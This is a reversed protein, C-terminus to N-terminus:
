LPTVDVVKGAITKAVQVIPTGKMLELTSLKVKFVKHITAQLEMAILSDLGIQTLSRGPDIREPPVKLVKGIESLFMDKITIERSDNDLLSLSVQSSPSKTSPDKLLSHFRPSSKWAPNFEGWEQWDVSAVAVAPIKHELVEELAQLAEKPLLTHIGVREFYEAVEQHKFVMGVEGLAGWNISTVNLGNANRHHALADLFCNAAVYAGQGPAGILSTLSSFLVFYDLSLEKTSSHLNWAGRAKANMVKNLQAETMFAIPADELVAAAHFIGSLPPADKSLELILQSVAGEEGVDLLKEHVCCGKKRLEEIADKAASSTAGSRGVLILTRAGHYVLWEAILLGFGGFGGTILYSKHKSISLPAKSTHQLELPPADLSVMDHPSAYEPMGEAELEELPHLTSPVSAGSEEIVELMRDLFTASSALEVPDLISVLRNPLTVKAAPDLLVCRGGTRLMRSIDEGHLERNSTIIVDSVDSDYRSSLGDGSAVIVAGTDKLETNLILRLLPDQCLVVAREGARVRAMDRVTFRAIGTVLLVALSREDNSPPLPLLLEPSLTYCYTLDGSVVALVEQGVRYGYVRSGVEEIQAIVLRLGRPLYHISQALENQMLSSIRTTCRVLNPAMPPADVGAISVRGGKEFAVRYSHSRRSFGEIGVKHLRRVFRTTGLYAVEEDPSPHMLEHLLLKPSVLPDSDVVRFSLEPYENMAVRMLGLLPAHTLNLSNEEGVVATCRTTVLTFRTGIKDQRVFTQLVPLFEHMLEEGTPDSDRARSPSSPALFIYEDAEHEGMASPHSALHCTTTPLEQEMLKKLDSLRAKESGLLLLSSRPELPATNAHIEWGDRYYYNTTELRQNEQRSLRQARVGQISCFVEGGEDMLIIDGEILDISESVKTALCLFAQPPQRLLVMQRISIPVYLSRPQTTVGELLVQFAGDLQTPPLIFTDEHKYPEQKEIWGLLTERGSSFLIKSVRQFHKGYQLGRGGMSKYHAEREIVSPHAKILATIDIHSRPIYSAEVVVGNAHPTALGSGTDSSVSFSGTKRDYSTHVSRSEDKTIVLAQSFTLDRIILPHNDEAVQQALQLAIEVYAAGPLVTAGDVSHDEILTRCDHEFECRYDGLQESVGLFPHINSLLRLARSADSEQFYRERQWPYYPLKVRSGSGTYLPRLTTLEGDLHLSILLERLQAIDSEGRKLTTYITPERERGELTEKISRTLVPHPGVEIFTSYGDDSLNELAQQLYVPNRINRYWYEGDGIAEVVRSGTVTSYLPLAPPRSVLSDLCNILEERLPSMSPSHYPVEVDLMKAFIGQAELERAIAFLGTSDGSLTIAAPANIAAISLSSNRSVYEEARERSIGVALMSGLGAAKKQLRSRHYSVLLAEELTHVGAAYLSAVEGVSHGVVASPTVGFELLVELLAAQLLFNAPQAILTDAISSTSENRSLETLISWGSIRRFIEDCELAKRRACPILLLERIMGWWQPGMGSFVLVIGDGKERKSSLRYGLHEQGHCLAGLAGLTGDISETSVVARESFQERFSAASYAIDRLSFDGKEILRLYGGAMARLADHSKATLVLPLTGPFSTEEREKTTRPPSQLLAHGNTGGYGFSNVGAFTDQPLSISERPLAINLAEFDIGPNPVELNALPPLLQKELSLAAKIIGAVGAAAELHGISSKISTVYCPTDRKILATGLAKAEIPDGVQTGTGHAEIFSLESPSVEGRHLVGRLLVHQSAESPVTIGPTRGDQNVGTARILAHIPDGDELAQHYPKLILIGAGEGRGYGDARADFSKSRGDPSLFRGKCMAIMLEPRLIVNVGGAIALSSEGMWLSTCAHHIAVLSSSCATDISMSPGRADLFYSIRNSLITMTSGVATHPGIQHRNDPTIQTLENDLTFGGIYVGTSTGAIDSPLIGADELAEWIVELLLRQQPDMVSAERPTIDFFHADFDFISRALFGGRKVYMKGPIEVDPDYYRDISWREKPVETTADRGEILLSWLEEYSEVGGPFRCGIGVIAIPDHKM